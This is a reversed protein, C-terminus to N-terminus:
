LELCRGLCVCVCWERGGEAMSAVAARQTGGGPASSSCCAPWDDVAAGGGRRQKGFVSAPPALTGKTGSLGPRMEQYAQPGM